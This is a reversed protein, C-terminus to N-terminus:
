PFNDDVDSDDSSEDNGIQSLHDAIVNETGKRDKMELEFEKINTPPPLKLIVNIKAKDVELGAGSVKHGLVIGEKIRRIRRDRRSLNGVRMKPIYIQDMFPLPFHDKAIAEILKRYDICIRWGTVTRTPVLEDNKNPSLM